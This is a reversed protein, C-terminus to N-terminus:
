VFFYFYLHKVRMRVEVIEVHKLVYQQMEDEMFRLRRELEEVRFDCSM